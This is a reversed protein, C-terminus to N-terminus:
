WVNPDFPQLFFFENSSDVEAKVVVALGVQM